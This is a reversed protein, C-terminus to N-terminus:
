LLSALEDLRKQEGLVLEYAIRQIKELQHPRGDFSIPIGDSQVPLIDANFYLYENEEFEEELNYNVIQNQGQILINIIPRVWQANGWNIAKEYLVPRRQFGSGL